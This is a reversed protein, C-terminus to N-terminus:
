SMDESILLSIYVVTGLYVGLNLVQKVDVVTETVDDRSVEGTITVAVTGNDLVIFM